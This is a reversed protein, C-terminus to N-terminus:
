RGGGVTLLAPRLSDIIHLARSAETQSLRIYGAECTYVHVGWDHIPARTLAYNPAVLSLYSPAQIGYVRDTPSLDVGYGPGHSHVQGVLRIGHEIAVDAVDNLLAPHINIYDKRREVLPGRLRILHTVEAIEGTDKGLWLVIGEHRNEGDRAMEDLSDEIAAHPIRWLQTSSFYPNNM